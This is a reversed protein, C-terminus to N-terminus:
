YSIQFQQNNFINYNIDYYIKLNDMLKNLIQIINRVENNFKNLLLKFEEMKNKIDEKNVILKKYDIINHEKNHIIECQMCLNNKCNKCYSIYSDNHIHCLYKIQDYNIIEHSKNHSSNCLPCLNKNCTLCKFFLNNYAQYKNVNNCNNCLINSININQTKEFDELLINDSIDGNKCIYLSIKYNKIEILCNEKCKPCIIDKSKIIGQYNNLITKNKEYVLIIIRDNNKKLENLTLEENIKDGGYIFYISNIDKEIKLAYKQFIQKMKENGNCQIITERSDFLFLIEVM